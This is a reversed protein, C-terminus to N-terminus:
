KISLHHCEQSTRLSSPCQQFCMFSGMGSFNQFREDHWCNTDRRCYVLLMWVVSMWYRQFNLKVTSIYVNGFLFINIFTWYSFLLMTSLTPVKSGVLIEKKWLGSCFYFIKFHMAKRYHILTLLLDTLGENM